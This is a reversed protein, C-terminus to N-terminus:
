ASTEGVRIFVAAAAAGLLVVAAVLMCTQMGGVFGTRDALLAGFVAIAVAGGVQRFTNFM